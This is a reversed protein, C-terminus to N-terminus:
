YERINHSKGHRIYANKKKDNELDFLRDAPIKYKIQEKVTLGNRHKFNKYHDSFIPFTINNDFFWLICIIYDYLGIICVQQEAM